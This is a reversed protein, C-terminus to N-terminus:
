PVQGQAAIGNVRLRNDYGQTVTLNPGLTWNLPGVPGYGGAPVTYLATPYSTWGSVVSSLHAGTDFTNTLTMPGGAAGVSNTLTIPDGALDYTYGLAPGSSTTCNGPVCQQEGKVRGMPDYSTISRLTFFGASPLAPPTPCTGTQTWEYVLRGVQNNSASGDYQFCSSLYGASSKSLLRNLADYGYNVAIGRTDTKSSVNGNADYAYQITGPPLASAASAPCVGQPTASNSSEPNSACLLRSLSDYTFTRVRAADTGSIGSQTAKLLNDNADYAYATALTPSASTASPELVQTLRGWSDSTRQWQNGNEDTFTAVNGNYSWQQASSYTTTTTGNSTTTTTTNDPQLQLTKRGLADYYYTTLPTGSPTTVLSSSPQSSSLFPNTVTYVRGLGDYANSVVRSGSAESTQTQIVHGLGDMISVSTRSPNPTQLTTATVSPVADDYCYTTQGGDPYDVETLRDLGDAYSCGSPQTNYHYNTPKKNEDASQSLEGTAYNYQYNEVHAVGTNPHTIQTAYANSNGAANGGSPSDTYAYGTTHTAGGDMDACSPNGCPDTATLVQGTSDYTFTTVSTPGGPVGSTTKTPNGRSSVGGSAAFNPDHTGSPVGGPPDTLAAGDLVTTTEAWKGGTGDQVL